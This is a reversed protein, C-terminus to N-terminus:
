RYVLLRDSWENGNKNSKSLWKLADNEFKMKSYYEM